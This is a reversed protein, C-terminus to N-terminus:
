KGESPLRASFKVGRLFGVAEAPNSGAFKPVLPWCTVELGGFVTVLPIYCKFILKGRWSCVADGGRLGTRYSCQTSVIIIELILSFLCHVCFVAEQVNLVPPIFLLRYREQLVV